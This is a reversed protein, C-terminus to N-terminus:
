GVFSVYFNLMENTIVTESFNDSVFSRGKAGMSLRLESDCILLELKSQFDILDGPNFSLGTVGDVIADVSGYIRSVVVPLYSAQANLVVMPLGERFSPLCFIDVNSLIYHLDSVYGILTIRDLNDCNISLIDHTLNQEDPGVMVLHVNNYKKALNSFANAMVIAGKDLTFRAMYLLIISGNKIKYNECFHHNSNSKFFKNINVGCISGKQLVSLKESTSVGQDILFKRQGHSDCLCHISLKNILVDFFVLLKRKLGSQNQWVQGTFTHFRLPVQTLFSALMGLLGCKPTITHVISPKIKFIIKVIKLLSILDRFLNIKRDIRVSFVIVGDPLLSKAHALDDNVIVSIQFGNELLYLIHPLLFAKLCYNNQIVFLINHM